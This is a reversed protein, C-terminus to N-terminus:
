GRKLLDPALGGGQGEVDDVKEHYCLGLAEKKAQSIM